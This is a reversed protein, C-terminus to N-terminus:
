ACGKMTVPRPLDTPDTSPDHGAGSAYLAQVEALTLVHSYICLMDKINDTSSQQNIELTAWDLTFSVLANTASTFLAGNEYCKLTNTTNDWTIVVHKWTGTAPTGGATLSQEDAGADIAFGAPASSGPQGLTLKFVQTGNKLFVEPASFGSGDVHKFWLALSLSRIAALPTATTTGAIAATVFLGGATEIGLNLKAAVSSVIGPDATLVLPPAGAVSSLFPGAAAEEFRYAAVLTM